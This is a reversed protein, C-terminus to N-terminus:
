HFSCLLRKQADCCSERFHLLNCPIATKPFACFPVCFPLTQGSRWQRNNVSRVVRDGRLSSGPTRKAM